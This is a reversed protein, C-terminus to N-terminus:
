GVRKVAGVFFGGHGNFLVVLGDHEGVRGDTQGAGSGLSRSFVSLLWLAGADFDLTGAEKKSDALWLALLALRKPAVTVEHFVAPRSRM